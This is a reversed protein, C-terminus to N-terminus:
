VVVTCCETLSLFISCLEQPSFYRPNTTLNVSHFTFSFIKRLFSIALCVCQVISVLWVAKPPFSHPCTTLNPSICYCIAQPLLDRQQCHLFPLAPHSSSNGLALARTFVCQGHWGSSLTNAVHSQLPRGCSPVGVQPLFPSPLTIPDISLPM